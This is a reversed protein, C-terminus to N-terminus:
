PRKPNNKLPGGVGGGEMIRKIDIPDMVSMEKRNSDYIFATLLENRTDVMYVVGNNAGTVRGPLMVYDGPPANQAQATNQGTFRWTLVGLLLANLAALAWILHRRNM